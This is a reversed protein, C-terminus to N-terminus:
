DIFKISNLLRDLVAAAEAANDKHYHLAGTIERTNNANLCYFNCYVVNNFIHITILVSNNNIKKLSSTYNTLQAKKALIDHGKKLDSLYTDSIKTTEDFVNLSILIDNVKYIHKTHINNVSKLASEDNNFTKTAHAVAEEKTISQAHAPIEISVGGNLAVQQGLVTFSYILMATLLIIKKM